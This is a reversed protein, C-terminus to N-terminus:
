GENGEEDKEIVRAISVVKDEPALDILKVGQTSRGMTSINAAKIRILKGSSAIIILEDEDEVEMVGVVKGNKPTIKLTLIGKGGRSQIRYASSDTRKGFGNETVTLLTTDKELVDLSVVEDDKQLRIGRVGHAIRGMDRVGKENFRISLGNRTSLIVDKNGDTLRVGILEDNMDLKIATIGKSRPNSFASLSTKKVVGRKTSMFLYRGEEFTKIPFVANIKEGESLQLLNVIAKGRAARGTEPIQYVKLWYLRGLNTFFLVNDHTSAIFLNEVFDGERMDMGILGKGGRRQSRYLDLPNRKIYGEHSITIVM